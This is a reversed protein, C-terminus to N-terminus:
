CTKFRVMVRITLADPFRASSKLILSDFPYCPSDEALIVESISMSTPTGSTDKGMESIHEKARHSVVKNSHM